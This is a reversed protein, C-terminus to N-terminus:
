QKRNRSKKRGTANALRVELAARKKEWWEDTIEVPDGSNLGELLAAELRQESKREQDGRILERVYESATSYGGVEVQGDIYERMTEPLSINISAM